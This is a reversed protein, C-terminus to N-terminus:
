AGALLQQMYKPALGYGPRIVRVKRESLVERAAIDAVVYLSHRFVMSSKESPMRAYTVGGLAAWAQRCSQCLAALDEPEM